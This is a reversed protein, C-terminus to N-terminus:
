DKKLKVELQNFPMSIGNDDFGKKIGETLDFYVDWYNENKTWARVVYSISSEKYEKVRVLIPEEKLVLENNQIVDNITKKVKNIDDEYSASIELDVRRNEKASYNIIKAGTIQANPISIIKNDGANIKTYIFNIDIVTGKIDGIEVFNEVAFPKTILISLGGAVDSLLGQFALSVALGFVGFLAIFSTIGINLKECIALVAVFYLVIKVSTRIFSHLSREVYSKKLFKDLIGLVIKIIILYVLALVFAAVVNSLSINQVRIEKITEVIKEADGM